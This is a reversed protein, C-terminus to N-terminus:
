EMIRERIKDINHQRNDFTSVAKQVGENTNKEATEHTPNRDTDRVKM